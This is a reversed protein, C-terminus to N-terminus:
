AGVPQWGGESAEKLVSRSVFGWRLSVPPALRRWKRLERHSETTTGKLSVEAGHAACVSPLRGREWRLVPLFLKMSRPREPALTRIHSLRGGWGM